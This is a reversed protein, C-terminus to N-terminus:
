QINTPDDIRVTRAIGTLGRLQIQIFLQKENEVVVKADQSTGDPYFLIMGISGDAEASSDQMTTLDRSNAGTASAAFKVGKPLLDDEFNSYNGDEFNQQRRSAISAQEQFSAFPAVNFWSGTPTYFVCHEEGTKIAKVRAQGMAVRVRDAGKQLAQRSFTRQIAPAAMAAVVIMIAIVLVLEVLSFGPRTSANVRLPAASLSKKSNLIM